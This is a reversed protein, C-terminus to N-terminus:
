IRLSLLIVLAIPHSDLILPIEECARIGASGPFHLFPSMM